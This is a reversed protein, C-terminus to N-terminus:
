PKNSVKRACPKQTHVLGRAINGNRTIYCAETKCAPSILLCTAAKTAVISRDRQNCYDCIWKIHLVQLAWVVAALLAADMGELGPQAAEPESSTDKHPSATPQSAICVAAQTLQGASGTGLQWLTAFWLSTFRLNACTDVALGVERGGALLGCNLSTACNCVEFKCLM